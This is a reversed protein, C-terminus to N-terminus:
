PQSICGCSRATRRAPRTRCPRAASRPSPSFLSHFHFSACAAAATAAALMRPEVGCTRYPLCPRGGAASPAPPRQSFAHAHAPGGAQHGTKRWGGTEKKKAKNKKKSLHSYTQKKFSLSFGFACSSRANCCISLSISHVSPAHFLPFVLAVAPRAHGKPNLARARTDAGKNEDRKQKRRSLSPSHARSLSFDWVPPARATGPARVARLSLSLSLAPASMCFIFFSLGPQFSRLRQSRECEMKFRRANRGACARLACGREM